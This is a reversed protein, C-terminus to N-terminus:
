QIQDRKPSGSILKIRQEFFIYTVEMQKKQVLPLM